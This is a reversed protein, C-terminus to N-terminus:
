VHNDEKQENTVITPFYSDCYQLYLDRVRTESKPISINGPIRFDGSPISLGDFISLHSVYQDRIYKTRPIFDRNEYIELAQYHLRKIEAEPKFRLHLNIVKGRTIFTNFKLLTIDSFFPEIDAFADHLVLLESINRKGLYLVTIHPTVIIASMPTMLSSIDKRLSEIWKEIPKPLRLVLASEYLTDKASTGEKEQEIFHQMNEKLSIMKDM